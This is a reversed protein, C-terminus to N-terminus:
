KKGMNPGTKGGNQSLSGQNFNAKGGGKGTASGTTQKNVNVTQKAGSISGQNKMKNRGKILFTINCHKIDTTYEGFYPEAWTLFADDEIPREPLIPPAQRGM